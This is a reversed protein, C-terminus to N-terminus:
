YVARATSGNKDRSANRALANHVEILNPRDSLTREDCEHVTNSPSSM